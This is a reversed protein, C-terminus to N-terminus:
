EQSVSMAPFSAEMQWSLFVETGNSDASVTGVEAPILLTLGEAELTQRLEGTPAEPLIAYHAGHGQTMHGWVVDATVEPVEAGEELFLISTDGFVARVAGPSLVEIKTYGLSVTEAPFSDASFTMTNEECTLTVSGDERFSAQLFTGLPPEKAEPVYAFRGSRIKEALDGSSIEARPFDRLYLEESNDAKQLTLDLCYFPVKALHRDLEPLLRAASEPSTDEATIYLILKGYEAGLASIDYEGDPIVEEMRLAPIDTPAEEPFLYNLQCFGITVDYPLAKLMPDTLQQYASELRRVTNWGNKVYTEYTDLVLRGLGNYYLTFHTDRSEDSVIFAHYKGDKFSYRVDEVDLALDSYVAQIHNEAGRRALFLSVPNGLFANAVWLIGCLILTILIRKKM